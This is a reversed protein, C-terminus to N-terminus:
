VYAFVVTKGDYSLDPSLFSGGEAAEGQLNGEGDYSINWNRKPGGTLPQGQLRGNAPTAHALLDRVAPHPGFPDALVFLGGGPRQTIGYYQDCCHNYISRHRKIFLLEDFAVLPNAFAIQRRLHCARNFLTRREATNKIAVESAAATLSELSSAANALDPANPKRRLDALLPATRRLIVDLPDRDTDQILSEPRFTEKAFRQFHARQRLDHLLMEYQRNEEGSPYATGSPATGLWESTAGSCLKTALLCLLLAHGIRVRGKLSSM